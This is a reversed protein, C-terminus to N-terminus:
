LKAILLVIPVESFSFLDFLDIKSFVYKLKESTGIFDKKFM